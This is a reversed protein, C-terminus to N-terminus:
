GTPTCGTTDAVPRRTGCPCERTTTAWSGPRLPGSVTPGSRTPTSPLLAHVRTPSARYRSRSSISGRGPSGRDRQGCRAHSVPPRRRIRLRAALGVSGARAPAVDRRRAHSGCRDDGRRSRRERLHPAARAVAVGANGNPAALSAAYDIILLRAARHEPDVALLEAAGLAAFAMARPWVSREQAAREFQIVALRACWASM